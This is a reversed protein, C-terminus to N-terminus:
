LMHLAIAVSSVLRCFDCPKCLQLYKNDPDKCFFNGSEEMCAFACNGTCNYVVVDGRVTGKGERDLSMTVLCCLLLIREPRMVGVRSGTFDTLDCSAWSQSFPTERSSSCLSFGKRVASAGWESILTACAAQPQCALSPRGSKKQSLCSAM